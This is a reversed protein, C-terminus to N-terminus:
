GIPLTEFPKPVYATWGMSQARRILEKASDGVAPIAWFCDLLPIGYEWVTPQPVGNPLYQLTYIQVTLATRVEDVTPIVGNPKGTCVLVHVPEVTSDIPIVPLGAHQTDQRARRAIYLLAGAGLLALLLLPNM